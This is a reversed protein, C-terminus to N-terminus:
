VNLRYGGRYTRPAGVIRVPPASCQIPPETLRVGPGPSTRGGAVPSSLKANLNQTSDPPMGKGEQGIKEGPSM